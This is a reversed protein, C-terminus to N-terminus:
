LILVMLDQFMLNWDFLPITIKTKKFNNTGIPTHFLLLLHILLILLLLHRIDDQINHQRSMLTTQTETLRSFAEEMKAEFSHRWGNFRSSTTLFFLVLSIIRSALLGKNSTPTRRSFLMSLLSLIQLTSSLLLIKALKKGKSRCSLPTKISWDVLSYCGLRRM